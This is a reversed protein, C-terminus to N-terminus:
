KRPEQSTTTVYMQPGLHHRKRFLSRTGFLLKKLKVLLIHRIYYFTYPAIGYRKLLRLHYLSHQGLASQTKMGEHWRLNGLHVFIHRIVLGSKAMRIWYDHDMNLHLTPDLLGIRDIVSRRFFTSPQSVYIEGHYLWRRLNVPGAKFVGIKKDSEDIRGGDGFVADVKPHNFFYNAVIRIAGPQYTDDSNIWAIIEGTAMRWGKNIADSQGKDPESKWILRDEYKKLIEVTNDTSGGDMVIYEINPYDQELVSLITREIFQGQNYSPTIISVKLFDM